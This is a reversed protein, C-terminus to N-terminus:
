VTRLANASGYQGKSYAQMRNLIAQRRAKAQLDREKYGTRDVPGVTPMSRGGGYIKNGVAYPNYSSTERSTYAM